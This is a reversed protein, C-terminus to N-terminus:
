VGYLWIEFQQLGLINICNRPYAWLYFWNEKGEERKGRSHFIALYKESM